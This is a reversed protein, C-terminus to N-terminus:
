LLYYLLSIFSLLIINSCPIIRSGFREEKIEVVYQIGDNNIKFKIDSIRLSLIKSPRATMDFAMVHYCRERINPSFKLFLSIVYESWLDSPTYRSINKNPLKKIGKVCSPTNRSRYNHWRSRVVVM